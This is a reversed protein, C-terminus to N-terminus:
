VRVLFHVYRVANIVAPLADKAAFVNEVHSYFYFETQRESSRANHYIGIIFAL